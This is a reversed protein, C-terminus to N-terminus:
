KHEVPLEHRTHICLLPLPLHSDEWLKQTPQCFLTGRLPPFGVSLPMSGSRSPRSSTSAVVV